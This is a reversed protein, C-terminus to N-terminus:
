FFVGKPAAPQHATVTRSIDGASIMQTFALPDYDMADVLRPFRTLVVETLLQEAGALQHNEVMRKLASALTEPGAPSDQAMHNSRLHQQMATAEELEEASYIYMGQGQCDEVEQLLRAQQDASLTSSLDVPVSAQYAPQNVSSLYREDDFEEEAGMPAHAANSGVRIRSPLSARDTQHYSAPPPQRLESPPAVSGSHFFMDGHDHGSGSTFTLSRMLKAGRTSGGLQASHRERDVALGFCSQAGLVRIWAIMDAESEAGFYYTRMGMRPPVVRFYYLMTNRANIEGPECVDVTVNRLDVSGLPTPDNARAFYTLTGERAVFWRRKWNKVFGGQKLLWGMMTPTEEQAVVVAQQKAVSPLAAHASQTMSSPFGDVLHERNPYVRDRETLINPEEPLDNRGGTLVQVHCDIHFNPPYRRSRTAEDIEEKPLRYLDSQSNGCSKEDTFLTVM